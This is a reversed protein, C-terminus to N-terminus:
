TYIEKRRMRTPIVAGTPLNIDSHYVNGQKTNKHIHINQKDRQDVYKMIPRQAASYACLDVFLQIVLIV